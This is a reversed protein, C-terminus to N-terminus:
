NIPYKKTYLIFKAIELVSKICDMKDIKEENTVTILKIFYEGIIDFEGSFFAAPKLGEKKIVFDGIQYKDDATYAAADVAVICDDKHKELIKPIEKSLVSRNLPNKIGGYCIFNSSSNLVDVFLPGFSDFVLDPTGLGVFVLKKDQNLIEKLINKNEETLM